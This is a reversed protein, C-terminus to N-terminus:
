QQRNTDRCIVFSSAVAMKVAAQLVGFNFWTTMAAAKAHVVGTYGLQM